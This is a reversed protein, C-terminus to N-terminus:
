AHKNEVEHRIMKTLEIEWPIQSIGFTKNIKSCDLVANKLRKVAANYEESSIQKLEKTKLTTFKNAEALIRKAFDYWSIAPAACYHYTGWAPNSNLVQSVINWVVAAIDIAPTPCTIQDSVISLSSKEKALKLITKVFNRGHQCFVGSVRLIIHQQLVSQIGLEGQLKSEGYLNVPNPPDEEIYPSLKEGDFIYDTSFHILSIGSKECQEALLLPAVANVYFVSEKEHEAQDVATYAAANIIIDPRHQDIAAKIDSEKTIDLEAENPAILECHNLQFNQQLSWGVQGGSGAILIRKTQPHQIM